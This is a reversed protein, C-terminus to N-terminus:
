SLFSKLLAQDQPRPGLNLTTSDFNELVRIIGDHVLVFGASVPKMGQPLISNHQLARSFVIPHERGDYNVVVVFKRIPDEEPAEPTLAAPLRCGIEDYPGLIDAAAMAVADHTPMAHSLFSQFTM